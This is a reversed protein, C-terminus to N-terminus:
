RIVFHLLRQYKAIKAFIIDSKEIESSFSPEEWLTDRFINEDQLTSSLLPAELACLGQCKGFNGYPLNPEPVTMLSISVNRKKILISLFLKM